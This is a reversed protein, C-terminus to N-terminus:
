ARGTGALPLRSLLASVPLVQAGLAAVRRALLRDSTVVTLSGPDEDAEVEEVIRDDAANPGPRRAYLVRVADHIGEPRDPLPRGDFVVGIVDGTAGALESLRGVLRRMAGPRDRWWGDPRAGIVNM